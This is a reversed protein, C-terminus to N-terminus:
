AFNRVLLQLSNSMKGIFFARNELSTPIEIYVCTDFVRTDTVGPMGLFINQAVWAWAKNIYLPDFSTVKPGAINTIMTGIKGASNLKGDSFWAIKHLGAEFWAYGYLIRAVTFVIVLVAVKWDKMKASVAEFYSNM